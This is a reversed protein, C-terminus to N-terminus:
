IFIVKEFHGFTRRRGERWTCSRSNDLYVQIFFLLLFNVFFCVYMCVSLKIPSSNDTVLGGVGGGGM